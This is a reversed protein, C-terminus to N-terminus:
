RSGIPVSKSFEGAPTRAIIKLAGAGVPVTMYSVDPLTRQLRWLGIPAPTPSVTVPSGKTEPPRDPLVTIRIQDGVSLRDTVWGGLTPAYFFRGGAFHLLEPRVHAWATPFIGPVRVDIQISAAQAVSMCAAGLLALISRRICRSRPSLNM